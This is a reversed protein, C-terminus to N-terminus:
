LASVTMTLNRQAVVTVDAGAPVPADATATWEADGLLVRGTKPPEIAETVKGVRGVYDNALGHAAGDKEGVFVRKMLRRLLLIYLVALVSFSATQATAGFAEGFAFRLAGVTLAALGFFCLVFGPAVLELLTLALGAYIWLWGCATM